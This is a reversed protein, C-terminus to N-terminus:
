RIRGASRRNAVNGTFVSWTRCFRVSNGGGGLTSLVVQCLWVQLPTKCDKLVKAWKQGVFQLYVGWVGM